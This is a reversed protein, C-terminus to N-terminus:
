GGSVELSVGEGGLGQAVGAKDALGVRGGQKISPVCRGSDEQEGKEEKRVQERGAETM